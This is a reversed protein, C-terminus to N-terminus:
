VRPGRLVLVTKTKTVAGGLVQSLAQGEAPQEAEVGQLWQLWTESSLSHDDCCRLGSSGGLGVSDSDANLLTQAHQM